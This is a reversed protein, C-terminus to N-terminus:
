SVSEGTYYEALFEDRLNDFVMNGEITEHEAIEIEKWRSKPYRTYLNFTRMIGYIQEKPFNPMNLQSGKTLCTGITNEDLFGKEVALDRLPTGHFPAFAYCNATDIGEIIKRNLNITDFALERTELPFGVINNVSVPIEYRATIDFAEQIVSNPYNRIVVDRRFKENGHELGISM